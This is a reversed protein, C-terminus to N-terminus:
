LVGELPSLAEDIERQRRLEAWEESAKHIAQKEAEAVQLALAQTRERECMSCPCMYGCKRCVGAQEGVLSIFLHRHNACYGM